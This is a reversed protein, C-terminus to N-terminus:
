SAEETTIRTLLDQYEDEELPMVSGRGNILNLSAYTLLDYTDEDDLIGIVVGIRTLGRGESIYIANAEGSDLDDGVPQSDGSYIRDNIVVALIKAGSEFTAKKEVGARPDRYRLSGKEYNPIFVLPTGSAKTQDWMNRLFAIMQSSDKKVKVSPRSNGLAVAIVGLMVAMIVVVAMMELLTFGKKEHKSM